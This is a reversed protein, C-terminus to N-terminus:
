VHAYAVRPHTAEAPVPRLYVVYTVAICVVYFALFSWFAPDGSQATMFSQRFALNIFLGGLAGIAGAIGIVAGSLRRARLYAPGPEAGATEIAVRAQGRFIAPIMKYTSGNGVGSFVFLLVFGITYLTLSDMASAALVVLASVGMAIFNYFTVKAGGYKDAFWGGVPRILSGLLPGIFTVAAAQLPTRGFQNQLVLGFAFSYGIFSGFTGIYLFSMVWTQPERYAEKFAGTDNRMSTLNDMKLAAFTAAVVILPIYVGLLIRPAGAGATAIILLGVLQIVPVGINGGGANLGLAWGKKAEPYFANINAMSSAFNGGGLGGVAAVLVFVWYPTGPQMVIAALITPILLLAASVITWNRGGFRAPAMTYPLRLISGVLTPVAVLFFKGAADIGYEPGMFLVLVSWMTWISFGIHESLISFWLNRNAVKAGTREWFGGDEPDWHDIWRGRLLSRAPPADPATTTM